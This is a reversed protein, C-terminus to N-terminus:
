LSSTAKHNTIVILHHAKGGSILKRMEISNAERIANRNQHITIKNVIQLTQTKFCRGMITFM